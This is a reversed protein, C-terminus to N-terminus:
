RPLLADYLLARVLGTATEVLAVTPGVAWYVHGPYAPLRVLL